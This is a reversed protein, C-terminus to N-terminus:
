SVHAGEPIDDPVESVPQLSAVDEQGDDEVPTRDRNLEALLLDRLGENGRTIRAIMDYAAALVSSEETPPESERPRNLGLWTAILRCASLRAHPNEDDLLAEATRFLKPIIHREDEMLIQREYEAQHTSLLSAFEPNKRWNYITKLEVGLESAVDTLSRGQALMKAALQQRISLGKLM